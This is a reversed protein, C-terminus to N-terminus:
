DILGRVEDAVDTVVTNKGLDVDLEKLLRKDNYVLLKDSNAAGDSRHKLEMLFDGDRIMVFIDGSANYKCAKSPIGLEEVLRQMFEYGDEPRVISEGYLEKLKRKVAAMLSEEDMEEYEEGTRLPDPGVTEGEEPNRRGEGKGRVAIDPSPAGPARDAPQPAIVNSVPGGEPQRSDGGGFEGLPRLNVERGFAAFPDERERTAVDDRKVKQRRESVELPSSLNVGSEPEEVPGRPGKRRGTQPSPTPKRMPLGRKSDDRSRGIRSSPMTRETIASDLVESFASRMASLFGTQPADTLDQRKDKQSVKMPKIKRPEGHGHTRSAQNVGYDVPPETFMPINNGSTAAAAAAVSGTGVSEKIGGFTVSKGFSSPYASFDRKRKRSSWKYQDETLDELAKDLNTEFKLKHGKGMHALTKGQRVRAADKPDSYSSFEARKREPSLKEWHGEAISDLTFTFLVGDKRKDDIDVYVGNEEALPQLFESLRRALSRDRLVYGQQDSEDCVIDYSSDHEECFQVFHDCIAKLSDPISESLENL